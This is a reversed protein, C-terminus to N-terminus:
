EGRRLLHRVGSLVNVYEKNKIRLRDNEAEFLALNAKMEKVEDDLIEPIHYKILHKLAMARGIMYALFLLIGLVIIITLSPILAIFGYQLIQIAIDTNSM